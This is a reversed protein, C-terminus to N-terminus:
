NAKAEIKQGVAKKAQGNVATTPAQQNASRMDSNGIFVAGPDMKMSHSTIDGEVFATAKLYLLGSSNLNGKVKGEIEADKCTIQGVVEGKEGIVLKGISEIEGEVKGDIRLGGQSELSGKVLTGQAVHNRADIAEENSKKKNFM